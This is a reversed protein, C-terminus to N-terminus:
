AAPAHFFRTTGDYSNEPQEQRFRTLLRAQRGPQWRVAKQALNGHSIARYIAPNQGSALFDSAKQSRIRAGVCIEACRREGDFPVADAGIKLGRGRGYRSKQFRKCTRHSPDRIGWNVAEAREKARILRTAADLAGRGIALYEIGHLKSPAMQASSTFAKKREISCVMSQAVSAM